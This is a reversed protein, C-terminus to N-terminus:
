GINNGHEAEMEHELEECEDIFSDLGEITDLRSKALYQKELEATDLDYQVIRRRDEEAAELDLEYDDADSEDGRLSQPGDEQMAEFWAGGEQEYAEGDPRLPSEMLLAEQMAEHEADMEEELRYEEVEGPSPPNLRELEERGAEMDVDDAPTDPDWPGGRNQHQTTTEVRSKLSAVLEKQHDLWALSATVELEASTVEASAQEAKERLPALQPEFDVPDSPALEAARIILASKKKIQNLRAREDLDGTRSVIFDRIKGVVMTKLATEPCQLVDMSVRTYETNYIDAAKAAEVAIKSHTDLAKSAVKSLNTMRKHLATAAKHRDSANSLSEKATKLTETLTDLEQERRLAAQHDARTFAVGWANRSKGGPRGRTGRRETALVPKYLGKCVEAAVEAELKRAHFKKRLREQREADATQRDVGTSGPPQVLSGCGGGGCALELSQASVVPEPDYMLRNVGHEDPKMYYGVAKMSDVYIGPRTRALEVHAKELLGMIDQITISATGSPSTSTMATIEQNLLRSFITKLHAIMGGKQRSADLEQLDGTTHAPTAIGYISNSVMLMSLELAGKGINSDHGDCTAVCPEKGLVNKPDDLWTKMAVLKADADVWGSETGTGVVVFDEDLQSAVNPPLTKRPVVLVSPLATSGMFGSIVSIHGLQNFPVSIQSREGGLVLFSGHVALAKLDLYWEDWNGKEEFTLPKGLKTMREEHCEDLEPQLVQHFFSAVFRADAM